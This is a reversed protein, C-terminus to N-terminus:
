PEVILRYFRQNGYNPDVINTTGGMGVVSTLNSWTIMNTSWQVEYTTNSATLWSINWAAVSISLSPSQTFTRQINSIRLEDITGNFGLGNTNGVLWYDTASWPQGPANTGVLAGDIYFHLGADGWTLAYHHWTNITIAVSNSPCGDGQSPAPVFGGGPMGQHGGSNDSSLVNIGLTGGPGQGIYIPSFYAEVFNPNSVSPGISNTLNDLEGWFEVTGNPTVGLAWGIWSNDNLHAANGFVGNTYYVAGNTAGTTTGDFHELLVTYADNTYPAAQPVFIQAQSRSSVISLALAASLCLIMKTTKGMRALLSFSWTINKM